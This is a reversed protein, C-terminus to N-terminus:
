TLTFLGSANWVITFDGGSSSVTSTGSTTDLDMFGVMDDNAATDDYLIAGKATITASTWTTDSTDVTVTGGSRSVAITTANGGATYGTGTIQTVDSLQCNTSTGAFSASLAANSGVLAVKFTHTDMDITSRVIKEKAINYVTFSGAAM